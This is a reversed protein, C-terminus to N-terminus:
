QEQAAREVQDVVTTAEAEAQVQTLLERMTEVLLVVVQEVPVQRNVKIQGHEAEAVAQM